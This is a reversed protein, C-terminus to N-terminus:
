AKTQFVAVYPDDAGGIGAQSLATLRLAQGARDGAITFVTQGNGAVEVTCAAGPRVAPLDLGRGPNLRRPAALILPGRAMPLIATLPGQGRNHMIRMLDQRGDGFFRVVLDGAMRAGALSRPRDAAEHHDLLGTIIMLHCWLDFRADMQAPEANWDLQQFRVGDRYSGLYGDVGQLALLSRRHM